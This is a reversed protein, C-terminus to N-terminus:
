HSDLTPSPSSFLNLLGKKNSSEEATRRLDAIEPFSLEDGPTPLWESPVDKLFSVDRLQQNMESAGDLANQLIFMAAKIIHREPDAINQRLEVYVALSQTGTVVVRLLDRSRLQSRQWARGKKVTGPRNDKGIEKSPDFDPNSTVYAMQGGAQNDELKLEIGFRKKEAMMAGDEMVMVTFKLGDRLFAGFRRLASHYAEIREERCTPLKRESCAAVPQSDYTVLQNMGCLFM